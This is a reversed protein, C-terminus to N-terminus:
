VGQNNYRAKHSFVLTFNDNCLFGPSLLVFEVQRHTLVLNSYAYGICNAMKLDDGAAGFLITPM